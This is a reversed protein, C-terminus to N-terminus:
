HPSPNMKALSFIGLLHSNEGSGPQPFHDTLPIVTWEPFSGCPETRPGTSSTDQCAVWLSLRAPVGDALSSQSSQFKQSTTSYSQRSSQFHGYATSKSFIAIGLMSVLPFIFFIAGLPHNQFAVISHYLAHFRALRVFSHKIWWWGVWRNM